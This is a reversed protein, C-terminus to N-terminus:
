VNYLKLGQHPFHLGQLNNLNNIISSMNLLISLFM